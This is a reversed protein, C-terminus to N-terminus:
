FIPQPSNTALFPIGFRFKRIARPGDSLGQIFHSADSKLEPSISEIRTNTPNYEVWMLYGGPELTTTLLQTLEDCATHNRVFKGTATTNLLEEASRLRRIALSMSLLCVLDELMPEPDDNQIVLMFLRVHVIDYQGLLTEPIQKFIDLQQLIVNELLWQNPPFGDVTKDFGHLQALPLEKNVDTLWIRTSSDTIIELFRM